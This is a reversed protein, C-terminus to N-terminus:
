NKRALIVLAIGALILGSSVAIRPTVAEGLLPLAAAATILPVSLQVAAAGAYTYRPMVAYWVAYGLASALGGAALALMVGTPTLSASLEGSGPADVAFICLQVAFVVPMGRLFNGTTDRLPYESNKGLISLFMLTAGSPSPASLGPMLLFFLGALALLLGAGLRLTFAEGHALGWAVMIGPVAAAIILTGVAAPLKQYALSFFVMYAALALASLWSGGHPAPDRRARAILWLAIAGSSMRLCAYSLPPMGEEQLAMRNLLSNGAFLTMAFLTAWLVPATIGSVRMAYRGEPVFYM